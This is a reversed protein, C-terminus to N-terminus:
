VGGPHAVIVPLTISDVTYNSTPSVTTESTFNNGAAFYTGSIKYTDMITLMTGLDVRYNAGSTTNFYPAGYEGM